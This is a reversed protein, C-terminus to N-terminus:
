HQKLIIPLYTEHSGNPAAGVRGWYGSRLVYNSSQRWAVGTTQGSTDQVVYHASTKPGGGSGFVSRALIYHASAPPAISIQAVTQQWAVFPAATPLPTVTPALTPSPIVTPESTPLPVSTASPLSFVMLTPPPECSDLSSMFYTRCCCHGIPRIVIARVIGSDSYTKPVNAGRTPHTPDGYNMDLLLQQGDTNYGKCVFSHGGNSVFVPRGADIEQKLDDFSPYWVLEADFAFGRASAYTEIGNIQNSIPSTDGCPHTGMHDHLDLMAQVMSDTLGSYGHQDWYNLIVAAATPSCGNWCHGDGPYLPPPCAARTIKVKEDCDDPCSQAARCFDVGSAPTVALEKKVAMPMLFTTRQPSHRHAVITDNMGSERAGVSGPVIAVASLLTLMIGLGIWQKM